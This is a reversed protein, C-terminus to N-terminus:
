AHRPAIKSQRIAKRWPGREAGPMVKVLAFKSVMDAKVVVPAAAVLPTRSNPCCQVRGRKQLDLDTALAYGILDHKENLCKGHHIHPGDNRHHRASTVDRDHRHPDPPVNLTVVKPQQEYRKLLASATQMRM